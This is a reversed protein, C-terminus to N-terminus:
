SHIHIVQGYCSSRFLSSVLPSWPPVVDSGLWADQVMQANEQFVHVSSDFGLFMIVIGLFTHSYCRPYILSPLINVHCIIPHVRVPVIPNKLKNCCIYYLTELTFRWTTGIDHYMLQAFEGWQLPIWQQIM